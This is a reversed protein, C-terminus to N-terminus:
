TTYFRDIIYNPYKKPSTYLEKLMTIASFYKAGNLRSYAKTHNIPRTLDLVNHKIKYGINAPLNSVGPHTFNHTPTKGGVFMQLIDQIDVLFETPPFKKCNTLDVPISSSLDFPGFKNITGTAGDFWPLPTTQTLNIGVRTFETTYKCIIPEMEIDNLVHVNRTGYFPGSSYKPNFIRSLGFDSIYTMIGVNKVYFIDNGVNYEFYGGSPIFDFLTNQLKYDSHALGYTNHLTAMGLLIQYLMSEILEESVTGTLQSLDGSALELFTMYCAGIQNRPLKCNECVGIDYSLIFNPSKRLRVLDSTLQLMRYEQPYSDNYIKNNKTKKIIKTEDPTLLAEKIVVAIGSVSTKYVTGFGGQGIVIPNQFLTKLKPNTGTLCFRFIDLDIENLYNRVRSEKLLREEIWSRSKNTETVNKATTSVFPKINSPEPRIDSIMEVDEIMTTDDGESSISVMEVDEDDKPFIQPLVALLTKPKEPIPLPLFQSSLKNILEINTPINTVAWQPTWEDIEMPEELRNM